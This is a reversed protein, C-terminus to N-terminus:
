SLYLIFGVFLCLILSQLFWEVLFMFLKVFRLFRYDIEKGFTDIYSIRIKYDVEATKFKHLYSLISTPLMLFSLWIILELMNLGM